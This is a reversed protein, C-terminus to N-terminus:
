RTRHSTDTYGPAFQLSKLAELVSDKVALSSIASGAFCM